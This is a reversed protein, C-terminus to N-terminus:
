RPARALYDGPKVPGRDVIAEAKLNVKDSLVDVTAYSDASFAAPNNLSAYTSIFRGEPLSEKDPGVAFAVYRTDVFGFDGQPDYAVWGQGPFYVQIWAHYLFGTRNRMNLSYFRGQGAVAYPEQFKLGAVFRAPIGLSRLMALALHSYGTCEGQGYQLTTVADYRGHDPEYRLHDVIWSVVADVVASESKLTRGGVAEQAAHKILPNDSQALATAQLYPKAETPIDAPAIPYVATKSPPAANLSLTVRAQTQEVIEGAPPSLWTADIYHNGYSDVADQMSTPQVSFTPTCSIVQQDNPGDSFTPYKPIILRFRQTGPPIHIVRRDTTAVETRMTGRVMIIRAAAHKAALGLVAAGIVAAAFRATLAYSKLM